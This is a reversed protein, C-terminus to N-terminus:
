HQTDPNRCPVGQEKCWAEVERIESGCSGCWAQATKGRREETLLKEVHEVYWHFLKVRLEPASETLRRLNLAAGEAYNSVLM